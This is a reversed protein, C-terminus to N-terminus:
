VGSTKGLDKLERKLRRYRSFLSTLYTGHILATAILAVYLFQVSKM